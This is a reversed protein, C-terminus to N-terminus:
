LAELEDPHISLGQPIRLGLDWKITITPQTTAIMGQWHPPLPLGRAQLFEQLFEEMAILGKANLQIRDGVSWPNIFAQPRKFNQYTYRNM